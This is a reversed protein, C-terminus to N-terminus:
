ATLFAAAGALAFGIFGSALIRTASSEDKDADQASVTSSADAGSSSASASPTTVNGNGAGEKYSLQNNCEGVTKLEFAKNLIPIYELAADVTVNYLDHSLSNGGQTTATSAWETANGMIYDISFTDAHENLYWDNTDVSWIVPTFGLAKCIDRVRNDINGFPPRFYKPSVGIVEKIAQETWKLEGVLQENTLTTMFSHSWSHMAIEHGEDYARKLTEPFQVVQTGVVFFTVKKNISKLYDLLKPTYESPGDDFSITWQRPPCTHLDDPGFCQTFTWVCNPDGTVDTPQLLEGAANTKIIPANTITANSILELWEAKPTPVVYGEPYTDQFQFGTSQANVAALGIAAALFLKSLM